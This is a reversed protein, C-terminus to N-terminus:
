TCHQDYDNSSTLSVTVDHKSDLLFYSETDIAILFPASNLNYISKLLLLVVISALTEALLFYWTNSTLDLLTWLGRWQNLYALAILLTYVRTMIQGFLNRRHQEYFRQLYSQTLYMVYLIVLGVGFSISGSTVPYDPLLHIDLLDWAGRWHINVLPTIIFASILMDMFYLTMYSRCNTILSDNASLSSSTTSSASSSIREDEHHIRSPYTALLGHQGALLPQVLSIESGLASLDVYTASPPTDTALQVASSVDDALLSQDGPHSIDMITHSCVIGHHSTPTSNFNSSPTLFLHQNDTDEEDDSPM